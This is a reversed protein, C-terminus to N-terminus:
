ESFTEAMSEAADSRNLSRPDRQNWKKLRHMLIERAKVRDEDVAAQALSWRYLSLQSRKGAEQARKAEEEKAFKNWANTLEDVTSELSAVRDKTQAMEEQLREFGTPSTSERVPPFERSALPAPADNQPPGAPAPPDARMAAVDSETGAFWGVLVVGLLAAAAILLPKPKM